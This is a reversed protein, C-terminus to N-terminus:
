VIICSNYKKTEIDDLVQSSQMCYFFFPSQDSDSKNDIASTSKSNKKSKSILQKRVGKSKQTTQKQAVKYKELWASAYLLRKIEDM